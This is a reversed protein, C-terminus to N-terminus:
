KVEITVGGALALAKLIVIVGVQKSVRTRDYVGDAVYKGRSYWNSGSYLYPSPIPRGDTLKRGRKDTTARYGYGNFGELKYSVGAITWDKWKLLGDYALADIASQEFTFPPAGKAPRNRPENVTKRTLLDGNHLHTEINCGSELEHILGIIWWPVATDEELNKYVALHRAIRNVAATVANQWSERTVLGNWRRNYDARAKDDLKM